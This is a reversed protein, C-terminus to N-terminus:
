FGPYILGLFYHSNGIDYQVQYDIANPANVQASNSCWTTGAPISTTSGLSATGHAAQAIFQSKGNAFHNTFAVLARDGGAYVAAEISPEPQLTVTNAPNDSRVKVWGSPASTCPGAANASGPMATISLALLSLVTTLTGLLRAGQRKADM